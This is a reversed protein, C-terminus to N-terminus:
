DTISCMCTKRVLIYMYLLTYYVNFLGHHFPIRLSNNINEDTIESIATYTIHIIGPIFMFTYRTIHLYSVPVMLSLSVSPVEKNAPTLMYTYTGRTCASCTLIPYRVVEVQQQVYWACNKRCYYNSVSATINFAALLVLCLKAASVVTCTIRRLPEQKPAPHMAAGVAIASLELIIIHYDGRHGSATTSFFNRPEFLSTWFTGFPYVNESREKKKKRKKRGM